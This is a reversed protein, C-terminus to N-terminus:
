YLRELLNCSKIYLLYISYSEGELQLMFIVYIVLGTGM